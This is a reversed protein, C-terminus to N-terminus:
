SDDAKFDQMKSGFCKLKHGLQTYTVGLLVISESAFRSAAASQRPYRYLLM